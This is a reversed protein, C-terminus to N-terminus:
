YSIFRIVRFKSCSQFGLVLKWDPFVASRTYIHIIQISALFSGGRIVRLSTKDSERNVPWFDPYNGIRPGIPDTQGNPSYDIDFLDWCLENVNGTMDYLGLENPQKTMVEHSERKSNGAWWAVQNIDNSGSYLYGQTEAGGRAAYEWEAETPLRYGSARRNWKIQLSGEISVPGDLGSYPPVLGEKLSRWNCYRLADVWAVHNVPLEMSELDFPGIDNSTSLSEGSSEVFESWQSRTIEHKEIYFDSITVKGGSSAQDSESGFTFDGGEVYALGDDVHQACSIDIIVLLLFLSVIRIKM